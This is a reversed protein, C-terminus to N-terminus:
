NEFKRGDTTDESIVLRSFSFLYECIVHASLPRLKFVEKATKRFKRHCLVFSGRIVYTFDILFEERLIKLFTSFNRAFFVLLKLPCFSFLEPLTCFFLEKAGRIKETGSLKRFKQYRWTFSRRREGRRNPSIASLRLIWNKDRLDDKKM